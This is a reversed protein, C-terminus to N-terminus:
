HFFISVRDNSKKQKSLSSKKHLAELSIRIQQAPGRLQLHVHQIVCNDNLALMVFLAAVALMMDDLLEM